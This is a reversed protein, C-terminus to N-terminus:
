TASSHSETQMALYLLMSPRPGYGGGENLMRQEARCLELAPDIGRDVLDQCNNTEKMYAIVGAKVEETMPVWTQVSPPRVKYTRFVFPAVLAGVVALSLAVKWRRM